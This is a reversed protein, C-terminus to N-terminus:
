RPVKVKDLTLIGIASLMNYASILLQGRATSADSRANILATEGSLIDILSRKGLKREKRALELFAKSISAQSKM